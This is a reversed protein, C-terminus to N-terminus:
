MMELMNLAYDLGVSLAFSYVLNLKERSRKLRMKIASASVKLEGELDEISTGAEYKKQLLQREETPLRNILALMIVQHEDENEQPIVDAMEETMLLSTKKQQLYSYCHRSAITYIWTKFQSDGRFDKLHDLAKLAVEQTLDFAVEEDHCLRQCRNYIMKYHRNYLEGFAQQQGRKFLAILEHDSLETANTNMKPQQNDPAFRARGSWAFM